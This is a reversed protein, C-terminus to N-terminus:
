ARWTARATNGILAARQPEEMLRYLDGPQYFPDDTPGDAPGM